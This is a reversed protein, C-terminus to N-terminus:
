DGISRRHTTALLPVHRGRKRANCTCAYEDSLADRSQLVYSGGTRVDREPCRGPEGGGGFAATIHVLGEFGLGLRSRPESGRSRSLAVPRRSAAVAELGLRQSRPWM